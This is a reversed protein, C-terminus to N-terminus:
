SIIDNSFRFNIRAYTSAKISKLDNDEIAAVVLLHGYCELINACAIFGVQMVARSWIEEKIDYIQLHKPGIFPTTYWFKDCFATRELIM